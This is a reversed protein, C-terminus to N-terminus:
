SDRRYLLQEILDEFVEADTSEQFLDFPKALLIRPYSSSM